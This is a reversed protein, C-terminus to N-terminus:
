DAAQPPPALCPETEQVGHTVLSCVLLASICMLGLPHCYPWSLASCIGKVSNSVARFDQCELSHNQIWCTSLEWGLLPYPSANLMQSRLQIPDQAAQYIQLHGQGHWPSLILHDQFNRGVWVMRHSVLCGREAKKKRQYHLDPRLRALLYNLDEKISPMM